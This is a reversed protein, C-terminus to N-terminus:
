RQTWRHSLQIFPKEVLYYILAALAITVIVTLLLYVYLPQSLWVEDQTSLVTKLWVLAIPHFLYVSYSIMGLWVMLRHRIPFRLVILSFMLFTVLYAVGDNVYRMDGDMWSMGLSTIPVLCLVLTTLRLVFLRSISRGWVEVSGDQDDYWYRFLVGWFMISLHYPMTKWAAYSPAFNPFFIFVAFVLLCSLIFFFVVQSNRMFGLAFLLAMMLYFCLELELTWYLGIILDAGFVAPIMTLNALFTSADMSREQWIWLVYAGLLVSVWFAPFLRFFRRIAFHRLPHRKEKSLSKCIVFGSIAFFLSIGLRGLDVISIVDHLWTGHSAIKPFRIYTEAVHLWLVLLAAIGRLADIQAIRGKQGINSSHHNQM